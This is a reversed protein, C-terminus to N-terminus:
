QFPVNLHRHGTPAILLCSISAAKGEFTQTTHCFNLGKKRISVSLLVEPRLHTPPENEIRKNGSRQPHRATESFGNGGRRTVHCTHGYATPMASSAATWRGPRWRANMTCGTCAEGGYYTGQVCRLSMRHACQPLQAICVSIADNREASRQM